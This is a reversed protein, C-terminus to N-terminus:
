RSGASSAAHATGSLSVVKAQKANGAAAGAEGKATGSLPAPTSSSCACLLLVPILYKM